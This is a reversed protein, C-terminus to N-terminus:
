ISVTTYLHAIHVTQLLDWQVDGALRDGGQVINRDQQLGNQYVCVVLYCIEFSYIIIGTKYYSM